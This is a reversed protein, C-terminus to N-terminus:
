CSSLHKNVCKKYQKELLEITNNIEYKEFNREVNEKAKKRDKIANIVVQAWKESGISLPISIVSESLVVEQTITDSIVCPLGSIQAELLTVPLGEYRSPFVFCDMASYLREPVNSEGYMVIQERYSHNEVIRRIEEEKPGTGVMLLKTDADQKAVEDFIQLLFEQNKQDNLRGIHGLVKENKIGLEHRVERRVVEDFKFKKTDFGNPIVTFPKDGFLWQGAAEGCAFGDTYFINFAPKLLRHLKMNMCTTNHSHAIRVKIGNKWGLFLEIAIASQNGHVHIIDFHRKRLSQNLAKFYNMSNKKRNPLEIVMIGLKECVIRHCDAIGSGAMICIEFEDLNIHTCYNMIVSSIGNIELNNAVMAVSIKNNSKTAM